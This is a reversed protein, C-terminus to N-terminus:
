RPFRERFGQRSRDLKGLLCAVAEADDWGSRRWGRSLSLEWRLARLNTWEGTQVHRSTILASAVCDRRSTLQSGTGHDGTAFGFTM